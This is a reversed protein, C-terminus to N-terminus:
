IFDESHEMANERDSGELMGHVAVMAQDYPSDMEGCAIYTSKLQESSTNMIRALTELFEDVSLNAFVEGNKYAQYKWTAYSSRVIGPTVAEALEHDFERLFRQLTSRIQGTSYCEGNRTDILIPNDVAEGRERQWSARREAETQQMDIAARIAPKVFKFHFEFIPLLRGPYSVKSYGAQRPRKELLAALTVRKESSWRRIASDLDEPEQLQSYVQPRQGAGYLVLLAVFAICWRSRLGATSELHRAGGAIISSLRKEANSGLRKFDSGVLLRGAAIRADESRM